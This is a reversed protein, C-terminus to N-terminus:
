KAAALEEDIVKALADYPIAGVGMRGNVFFTPTGPVDLADGEAVDAEVRAQYTGQDLAKAFAAGDLGLDAAYGELDARALADQSAYLADHYEWFKGQAAAALSAEAALEAYEHFSLPFQKFVLRLQGAYHQRLDALVAEEEGCYPCQFDGFEVLTVPADAPGLTPADGIDVTVRESAPAIADAGGAPLSSSCATALLAVTALLPLRHM